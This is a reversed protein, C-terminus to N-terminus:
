KPVGGMSNEILALAINYDCLAQTHNSTALTLASQSDVVDINTGIGENYRNVAISYAERAKSIASASEGVRQAAEMISNYNSNVALFVSERIQEYNYKAKRVAEEASSVKSAGVGGDMVTYDVRVGVSFTDADAGPWERASGLNQTVTLSAQPLRQGKAVRVGAEASEIALSAITLGPHARGAFALCEELTPAYKEYTMKENVRLTTDLPVGMLNNLQKIATNLDSLARIRSQNANSLEVESRLLDSKGVRGNEYQIGVSEVHAALRKTSEEAQRAADEARLVAYVGRVVDLKLDQRSKRLGENQSKYDSDAKKITNAVTGGTYLPYAASVSNGYSEGHSQSYSEGQYDTYSSSHAVSVTVSGMGHAQRRAEGALTVDSEAIKVRHNNAFALELAQEINVELVGAFTSSPSSFASVLALAVTFIARIMRLREKVKL